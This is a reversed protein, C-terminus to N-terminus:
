DLTYGMEQGTDAQIPEQPRLMRQQLDDVHELVHFTTVFCFKLFSLDFRLM